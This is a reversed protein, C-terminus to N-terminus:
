PNILRYFKQEGPAAIVVQKESGVLSVVNTVSAWNTTGLTSDQQLRFGSSPAPWTIVVANAGTLAVRLLPAAPTLFGSNFRPSVPNGANDYFGDVGSNFYGLTIDPVGDNTVSLVKFAITGILFNTNVPGAGLTVAEFTYIRGPLNSESVVGATLNDTLGTPLFETAAPAGTLNLQANDFLASIGCSSVGNTDVSMLIGVTVLDGPLAARTSQIGPTALDMDVSVSNVAAVAVVVSGVWGALAVLGKSPRAPKMPNMTKALWPPQGIEHPNLKPGKM